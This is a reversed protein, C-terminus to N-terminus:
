AEERTTQPLSESMQEDMMAEAEEQSRAQFSATITLLGVMRRVSFSRKRGPIGLSEVLTDYQGCWNKGNAYSAMDEFIWQIRPDSIPLHEGENPIQGLKRPPKWDDGTGRVSLAGDIYRPVQITTDVRDGYYSAGNMIRVWIYNVSIRTVRHPGDENIPLEPRADNIHSTRLSAVIGSTTGEITFGPNLYVMDGVQPFTDATM